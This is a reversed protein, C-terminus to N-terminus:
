LGNRLLPFLSQPAELVGWNRPARPRLSPPLVIGLYANGGPDSWTPDIVHGNADTCWAHATPVPNSGIAFGETYAFHPHERETAAANAFCQRWDGAQVGPPLSAPTCWRGHASVLSYVSRHTWGTTGDHGLQSELALHSKLWDVLVQESSSSPRRTSAVADVADRAVMGGAPVDGSDAGSRM